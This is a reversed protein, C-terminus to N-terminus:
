PTLQPRVEEALLRLTKEAKEYPLGGWFPRFIFHNFGMKNFSRIKDAVEDPTGVLISHELLEDWRDEFWTLAQYNSYAKYEKRMYFIVDERAQKPDESILVEKLLPREIGDIPKGAKKLASNYIDIHKPMYEPNPTNGPTFWADGLRAAREVAKRAGAGIWIKPGNKQYPPCSIKGQVNYFEGQHDIEMGSWLARIVKLSEELMRGRSGMNVRFANYEEERYGIGVGLVIRGGSLQDLSAFEEAIHVPHFLPLLLIGTGLAMDGSHPILTAMMSVPQPSSLNGLFHNITFVSDFSLDRAVQVLSVLGEINERLPLERPWQHSALIGFKLMKVTM